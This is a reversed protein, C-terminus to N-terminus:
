PAGTALLPEVLGPSRPTPGAERLLAGAGGPVPELRGVRDFLAALDARQALVLLAAGPLEERVVALLAAAATGDLSALAEDLVLLDPARLLARALGLRQLEGASLLRDWREVRDLREVLDPLGCRRLVAAIRGDPPPDAEGPYLLGDRLSGLPLYTRGPVIATRAGTALHLTGRGWPWLGALARVLTSKGSGSPGVLLVQEGAGLVLGDVRLIPRGQADELLLREVALLPSAGRAGAPRRAPESGVACAPGDLAEALEVVRRASALWNALARWNEVLWAIAMQVQVFAAALQMVAGLSLEGSLYKPTALLLPVVPVLVANGNVIWTLRGSQWVVARWRAVLEALRARAARREDDAGGLLAVAEANERLRTLAFRFRAEAENKEAVRRPLTRGIWLTAGSALSGYLLAAVVMYAPVWFGGLALGGGVGWLIGIFTLASISANLLGIAFDILPDIAMRVDDAIRYEPNSGREGLTLRYFRDDALWRDVLAGTLWERWRVQITERSLVVGVQIAATAAVILPFLGAARWLGPLHRAELADFFWRNWTAILVNAAIGLLVCGALALALFWARRATPGSWFGCALVAFARAARWETGAQPTRARAEGGDMGLEAGSTGRTGGGPRGTWRPDSRRDLRARLRLPRPGDWLGGPESGRGAPATGAHVARLPLSLRPEDIEVVDELRQFLRVLRGAPRRTELEVLVREPEILLFHRLSPVAHLARRKGFIDDNRTRESFVEVVVVPDDVITVDDPVRGCRVFAHPYMIADLPSRVDLNSGHVQCAPGALQSHVTAIANTAIPDQARTGGAMRYVLGDIPEHRLKQKAERALFGAVDTPVGRRALTM